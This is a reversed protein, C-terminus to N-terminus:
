PTRSTRASAKAASSPKMSPRTLAPTLPARIRLLRLPKPEARARLMLPDDRRTDVDLKAALELLRRRRWPLPAPFCCRGTIALASWPQDLADWADPSLFPPCMRRHLQQEVISEAVIVLQTHEGPIDFHHVNNGLHDRYTFVRCRPSVSLSFSLCHQHSDSRPICGRRWSAKASPSRIASVPHSPPHLLLEHRIRTKRTHPLMVGGTGIPHLVAHLLPLHTRPHAHVAARISHLFAAPDGALIEGITTYSLM